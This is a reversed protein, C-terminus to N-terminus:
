GGSMGGGAAQLQFCWGGHLPRMVVDCGCVWGKVAKGRTARTAVWDALRATMMVARRDGHTINQKSSEVKSAEARVVTTTLRM